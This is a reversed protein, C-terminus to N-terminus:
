GARATPLVREAILRADAAPDPGGLIIVLDGFGGRAYNELAREVVAVDGGRFNIQAARRLTAPDRGIAACDEDLTRSLEIEGPVDLGTNGPITWVDAWRVALRRMAPGAAGIWLPPRPRQVPKPESVANRLHFYRGEFDTRDRTWLSGIVQLSESLLGV